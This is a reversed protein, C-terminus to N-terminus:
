GAKHGVIITWGLYPRVTRLYYSWEEDSRKVVDDHDPHDRHTLAWRVTAHRHHSRYGEFDADSASIMAGVECGHRQMVAALETADLPLHQHTNVVPRHRTSLDGVVVAGGPKVARVMWEVSQVFGGLAFTAGLCLSIDFSEPEPAFDGAPGEVIKVHGRKPSHSRAFAAFAPNLELGTGEIDFREAWQRMVWAKGCGVDLVKLGDRIDCYDDLLRLKRDTVPNQIEIDAEAIAWYDQADM